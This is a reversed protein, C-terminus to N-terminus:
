PSGQQDLSHRGEPRAWEALERAFWMSFAQQGERNMHAFDWFCRMPLEHLCHLVEVGYVDCYQQLVKDSARRVPDPFVSEAEPARPIRLFVIRIGRARAQRLFDGLLQSYELPRAQLQLVGRRYSQFDEPGQRSVPEPEPRPGWNEPDAFLFRLPSYVRYLLSKVVNKLFLRHEAVPGAGQSFRLLFLADEFVVVDPKSRLIRRCLRNYDKLVAGNRTFRVFSLEGSGSSQPLRELERDWYLACRTLSTGLAVVRLKATRAHAEAETLREVNFCSAPCAGYTFSYLFSSGLLVALLVAAKIWVHFPPSHRDGSSARSSGSSPAVAENM